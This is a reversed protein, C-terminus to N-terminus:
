EGEDQPIEIWMAPRVGIGEYGAYIGFGEINYYFMPDSDAYTVRGGEGCTRLWWDSCDNEIDRGNWNHIPRLAGQELAYDTPGCRFYARKMYSSSHFYTETEAVSLLFVRDQTDEGQETDTWIPNIDAPVESLCIKGQEWEDFAAAYFDTNLWTRITSKEWTVGSYKGDAADDGGTRKAETDYPVSDLVRLSLLLLRDNQKDLVVWEIDEKGDTQDNDQEYSGYRICGGVVANRLEGEEYDYRIRNRLSESDQFNGAERLLPYAIEYDGKELAGTGEAYARAYRAQRGRDALVMLLIVGALLVGATVALTRVVTRLNKKRRQIWYLREKEAERERRLEDLREKEEKRKFEEIASRCVEIQEKADKWDGVKEFGEIAREYSAINKTVMVDKARRYIEALGAEKEQEHCLLALQKADKYGSISEFQKAANRFVEPRYSTKMAKLASNYIEEANEVAM